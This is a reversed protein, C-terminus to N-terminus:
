PHAEGQLSEVRKENEEELDEMEEITDTGNGEVAKSVEGISEGIFLIQTNEYDLHNPELPGWRRDDFEQM